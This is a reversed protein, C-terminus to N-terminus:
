RYPRFSERNRFVIEGPAGQLIGYKAGGVILLADPRSAETELGAGGQLNQPRGREAPRFRPRFRRGGKWISAGNKLNPRCPDRKQNPHAGKLGCRNGIRGQRRAAGWLPRRGALKWNQIWLVGFLGIVASVDPGWTSRGFHGNLIGLEASACRSKFRRRSDVPTRTIAGASPRLIRAPTPHGSRTPWRHSNTGPKPSWAAAAYNLDRVGDLESPGSPFEEGFQVGRGVELGCPRM